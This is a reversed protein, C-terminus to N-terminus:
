LVTYRCGFRGNEVTAPYLAGPEPLLGTKDNGHFSGLLLSTKGDVMHVSYVVTYLLINKIKVLDAHHKVM